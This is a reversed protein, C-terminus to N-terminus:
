SAFIPMILQPYLEADASMVLPIGQMKALPM